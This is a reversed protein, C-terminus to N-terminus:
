NIILSEVIVDVKEAVTIGKYSPIEINFDPLKISFEATMKKQGSAIEIKAKGVIDKTVGHVKLQGSFDFDGAGSSPISLENLTLEATPYTKVELYKNKMHDDRLDIGTKLKDLAFILKGSIKNKSVEELLGKFGDAEGKINILNPWGKTKFAVKGKEPEFSYKQASLCVSVQFIIALSVLLTKM